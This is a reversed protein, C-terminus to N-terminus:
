LYTTCRFAQQVLCGLYLSVCMLIVMDFVNLRRLFPLLPKHILFHNPQLTAVPIGHM